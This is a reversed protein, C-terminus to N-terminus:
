TDKQEIKFDEGLLPPLWLLGRKGENGVRDKNKAVILSALAHRFSTANGKEEEQEIMEQWPKLDMIPDCSPPSSASEDDGHSSGGAESTKKTATFLLGAMNREQEAVNTSEMVVDKQGSEFSSSACVPLSLVSAEALAMSHQQTLEELGTGDHNPQSRALVALLKKSESETQPLGNIEDQVEESSSLLSPNQGRWVMNTEAASPEMDVAQQQSANQSRPQSDIGPAQDEANSGSACASLAAAFNKSLLRLQSKDAVFARPPLAGGYQHQRVVDDATSAITTAQNIESESKRRDENGQLLSASTEYDQFVLHVHLNDRKEGNTTTTGGSAKEVADGRNSRRVSKKPTSDNGATEPNRRRRKRVPETTANAINPKHNAKVYSRQVREITAASAAEQATQQKPQQRQGKSNDVTAEVNSNSTPRGSSKRKRTNTTIWEPPNQYNSPLTQNKSQNGSVSRRNSRSRSAVFPATAPVPEVCESSSTKTAVRRTTSAVPADKRHKAAPKKIAQFRMWPERDRRGISIVDNIRLISDEREPTITILHPNKGVIHVRGETDIQIMVKSLSRINQAVPRCHLRCYHQCPCSKWWWAALNTRGLVIPLQKADLKPKKSAPHLPILALQTSDLNECSSSSDTKSSSSQKVDGTNDKDKNSANNTNAEQPGSTSSSGNSSREAAPSCCLEDIKYPIKVMANSVM